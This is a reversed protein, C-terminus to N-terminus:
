ILTKFVQSKIYKIIALPNKFREAKTEIQLPNNIQGLDSRAKAACIFEFAKPHVIDINSNLVPTGIIKKYTVINQTYYWAIESNTWFFERLETSSQYGRAAFLKEWYSQWQENVHHTGTQGPIAASFVITDASQCLVDVLTTAYVEDLHEATELCLCLDFKGLSIPKTLDQSEFQEVPIRLQKKNIHSGDIGVYKNLGFELFVAGWSGVGCGYEVVSGTGYEAIIKPVVQLASSYSEQSQWQFWEEPYIEKM